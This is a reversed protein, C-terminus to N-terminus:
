GRVHKSLGCSDMLHNHLLPLYCCCGPV